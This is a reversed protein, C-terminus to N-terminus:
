FGPSSIFAKQLCCKKEVWGWYHNVKENVSGWINILHQKISILVIRSFCKKYKKHKHGNRSRLKNIEYRNPKKENKDENENHNITYDRSYLPM